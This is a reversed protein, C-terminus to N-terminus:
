RRSNIKRFYLFLIVIAVVVIAIGSIALIFGFTTWIAPPFDSLVVQNLGSEVVSVSTEGKTQVMTLWYDTTYHAVIVYDGSPLSFSAVGLKDSVDLGYGVGSVTEAVVYSGYVPIGNTDLVKVTLRYVQTKIPYINSSEVHITTEKVIRDKWLITFGYDGLPVDTLNVFGNSSTYRPYEEKTGNAWTLYVQANPLAEDLDDTILFMPDFYEVIGVNFVFTEEEAFPYFSGTLSRQYDGNNDVIMVKATYNGVVASVPYSWSAEFIQSYDYQNVGGSVKSMVVNNVVASGTPDLITLNVRYIDYSGFPDTVNSRVIVRRQADSWNYYFLTTEQNEINFTNISAPRAYDKAPLIAKSPYLISDYWIRTEASSGANVEVEVLITSGASFSHSLSTSLNYNSIPVDLYSGLNSTVEPSIYGSNWLINGGSSIERFNVAFGTPKYATSNAWIFVQWNGDITVPGALNPNLYFDMVIKPLGIPKYLTNEYAQQQSLFSFQRKTNMLYKTETGGAAVPVDVYHFYFEMPKAEAVYSSNVIPFSYALISICFLNVLILSIFKNKNLRHFEFNM